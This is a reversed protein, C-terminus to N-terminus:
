EFDPEATTEPLPENFGKVMLWVAVAIQIPGMPMAMEGIIGYDLYIMLTGGIFQLVVGIIGLAALARPIM